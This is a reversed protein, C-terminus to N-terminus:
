RRVDEDVISWTSRALDVFEELHRTAAEGEASRWAAEMSSRDAWFLEVIADWGPHPRTWDEAVHNQIYRVLGPLREAMAGHITRLNTHFEEASLDSRRYLVVMFKLM